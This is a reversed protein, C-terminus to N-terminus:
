LRRHRRGGAFRFLVKYPLERLGRAAFMDLVLLQGGPRVLAALRSVAVEFPLHHVAAISVVADFTGPAEWAMLDAERVELNDHGASCRRAVEVMRPSLDIALVRRARAALRRALAGIGCGVELVDCGDPVQPIVLETWRDIADPDEILGAIRDFDERVM